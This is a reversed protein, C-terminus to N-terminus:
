LAPAVDGGRDSPADDAAVDSVLGRYRPVVPGFREAVALTFDHLEYGGAIPGAFDCLLQRQTVLGDLLM